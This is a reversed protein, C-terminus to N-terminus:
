APANILEMKVVARPKKLLGIVKKRRKNARPEIRDPRFGVAQSVSTELALKVLKNTKVVCALLWNVALLQQTTAGQLM